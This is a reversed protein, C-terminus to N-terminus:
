THCARAQLYITLSAGTATHPPLDPKLEIARNYDKIAQDYDELSYYAHGRNNYTLADSPNLEIVRTYDKIAEAYNGLEAQCHGRNYWAEVFGPNIKIARSFEPVAASCKGSRALERGKENIEDPTQAALSPILPSAAILLFCSLCFGTFRAMVPNM